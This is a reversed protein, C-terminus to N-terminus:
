ILGLNSAFAIAEMSNAAGLKELIRQRHTNVTHLSISLKNSIEKSLLGSKVLQLVQSERPTLSATIRVSNHEHPIRVFKGTKFNFLQSKLGENLDQDPSIDVISLSLWMNGKDDFALIQNQEIVRVYYNDAHLVRYENIFKYGAREEPSFLLFLKLLSLGNKILGSIDDPHIKDDLFNPRINKIVKNDYGLLGSFNSSYFVHEQKFKDFISIGSNGIDAMQQLVRIHNDLMSYDLTEENFQQQNMLNFYVESLEKNAPSQM